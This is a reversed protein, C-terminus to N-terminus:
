TNKWLWDKYAFSPNSGYGCFDFPAGTCVWLGKFIRSLRIRPKHSNM